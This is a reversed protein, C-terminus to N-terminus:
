KAESAKTPLDINTGPTAHNDILWESCADATTASLSKADFLYAFSEWCFACLVCVWFLVSLSFVAPRAAVDKQLQIIGGRFAISWYVLASIALISLQLPLGSLAQPGTLGCAQLPLEWRAVRQSTFAEQILLSLGVGKLLLAAVMPVAVYASLRVISLARMVCGVIVAVAFGVFALLVLVLLFGADLVRVSGHVAISQLLAYTAASGAGALVFAQFARPKVGESYVDRLAAM